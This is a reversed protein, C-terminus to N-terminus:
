HDITNQHQGTSSWWVFSKVYLGIYWAYVWCITMRVDESYCFLVCILLVVFNSTNKGRGSGRECDCRLIEVFLKLVEVVVIAFLCFVLKLRQHQHQHYWHTPTTLFGACKNKLTHTNLQPQHYNNLERRVLTEHVSPLKKWFINKTDTTELYKLLYLM